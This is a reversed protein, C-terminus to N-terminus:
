KTLEIAQDNTLAKNFLRFDKIQGILPQGGGGADYGLSLLTNMGMNGDFSGSGLFVGNLYFARVGNGWTLLVKHIQNPTLTVYPALNTTGDYTNLYTDTGFIPTSWMVGNSGVVTYFGTSHQTFEVYM